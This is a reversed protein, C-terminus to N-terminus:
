NVRKIEKNSLKYEFQINKSGIHLVKCEELNFRLKWIDEWYSLRNLDMQITEKSLLRVLLKVDDAFLKIEPKIDNASASIFILFFCFTGTSFGSSCWLTYEIESYNNNIKVKM